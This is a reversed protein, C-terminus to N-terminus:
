LHRDAVVHCIRSTWSPLIQGRPGSSSVARRLVDLTGQGKQTRGSSGSSVQYTTNNIRQWISFATCMVSGILLQPREEMLKKMARDWIEKSDFDWHARDFDATTLDLAFGLILRLEPLMKTAATVRPPSYVDSVIATIARSRERKYRTQDGGLARVVSLIEGNIKSM